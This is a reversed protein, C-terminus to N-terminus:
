IIEKEQGIPEKRFPGLDRIKVPTLVLVYGDIFGLIEILRLIAQKDTETPRFKRVYHHHTIGLLCDIDPVTGIWFIKIEEQSVKFGFLDLKGLIKATRLRDDSRGLSQIGGVSDLPLEGDLARNFEDFALILWALGLCDDFLNSRKLGIPM